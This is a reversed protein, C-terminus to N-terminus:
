WRLWLLLGFRETLLTLIVNWNLLVTNLDWWTCPVASLRPLPQRPPVSSLVTTDPSCDASGRADLQVSQPASINASMTGARGVAWGLWPLQPSQSDRLSLYACEQKRSLITWEAADWPGWQGEAPPVWLMGVDRGLAKEGVSRYGGQAHDGPCWMGSAWWGQM